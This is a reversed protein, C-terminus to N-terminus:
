CNGTTYRPIMPMILSWQREIWDPVQCLTELFLDILAFCLHGCLNFCLPLSLFTGFHDQSTLRVRDCGHLGTLRKWWDFSIRDAAEAAAEAVVITFSFLKLGNYDLITLFLPTGEFYLFSVGQRLHIRIHTCGFNYRDPLRWDLRKLVTLCDHRLIHLLTRAINVLVSVSLTIKRM